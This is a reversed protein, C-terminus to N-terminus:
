DVSPIGKYAQPTHPSTSLVGTSLQHFPLLFGSSRFKTTGAWNRKGVPLSSSIRCWAPFLFCLNHLDLSWEKLRTSSNVEICPSSFFEQVSNSFHFPSADWWLFGRRLMSPFQKDEKPQCKNWETRKVITIPLGPSQGSLSPKIWVWCELGLQLWLHVVVQLEKKWEDSLKQM